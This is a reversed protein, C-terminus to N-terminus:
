KTETENVSQSKTTNRKDHSNWSTAHPVKARMGINCLAFYLLQRVLTPIALKVPEDNYTNTYKERWTTKDMAFTEKNCQMNAGIYPHADKTRQM